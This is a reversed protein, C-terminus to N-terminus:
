SESLNIIEKRITDDDWGVSELWDLVDRHKPDTFKVEGDEDSHLVLDGGVVYEDELGMVKM